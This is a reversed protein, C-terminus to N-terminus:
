PANKLIRHIYQRIEGIAAGVGLQANPKSAPTHRHDVVMMGRTLEGKTEVDVFHDELQVAGPLALTVVGLVDKLHFGEIGYLHSSARIAYPVIQRLFQCTKSDPNPLDLLELPSLVLKRTVDLPIVIPHLGSIVARRASEPDLAFHFETMPGANGPEKWTGGVLVLRDILGPLEPDRDFARAITTAPGLCIVSVERPTERVLECLLKDAVLQSHRDATAFNTGGLGDPGHMATGNLQYEVPYAVATRPWKPPDLRDILINVNTTARAASINGACPLLGVVELNPDHLALAIAFATDIGPDAILVVKRAM